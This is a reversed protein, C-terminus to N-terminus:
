KNKIDFDFSKFKCKKKQKPVMTVFTKCKELTIIFLHYKLQAPNLDILFPRNKRQKNNLSM